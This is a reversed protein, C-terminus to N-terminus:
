WYSNGSEAAREEPTKWAVLWQLADTSDILTRAQTLRELVVSRQEEDLNAARREVDTFFDEIGKAKVWAKIIEALEERSDKIAKVRRREEEERRWIVQRAEWEKREIEAKREGEEVLQAITATERKLEKVIASLKGPFDGTKTERWQRKWDARQYPSYAQICLRGSPLDHMSTWSYSEYRRTKRVPLESVRVYKGDQYKAEVNESMEFITLGILVSGITVITDRSPSWLDSYNRDKGGKEREDVGYRRLALGHREFAVSYSREELLLFLENAVDLARSCTQKSAIVDVMLRKSPRLYGSSTERAEDFYQQAGQLLPHRDPLESRDRLRSKRKRPPKPLPLKARRPLGYRNWELEDNPEAEPLPPQKSMKGVTNARM